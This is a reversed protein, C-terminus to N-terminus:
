RFLMYGTTDFAFLFGGQSVIGAGTGRVVDNAGLNWLLAGAIVYGVDLIANIWFAKGLSLRDKKVLEASGDGAFLKERSQVQGFVAFALDVAGWALAQVGVFRSFDDPGGFALGAGVGMSALSWAGLTGFMAQRQVVHDAPLVPAQVLKTRVPAPPEASATSAGLALAAAFALTVPRGM